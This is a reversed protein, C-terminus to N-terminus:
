STVTPRRAQSSPLKHIGVFAKVTTALSDFSYQYNRETPVTTLGFGPLDPAVVRYHGALRMLERFMHLSSPFGHLLLLVLADVPGAQRYFVRVRSVVRV